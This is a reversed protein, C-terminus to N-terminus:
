RGCDPNPDYRVGPNVWDRLRQGHYAEILNLFVFMVEDLPACVDNNRWERFCMSSEVHTETFPKTVCKAHLDAHAPKNRFATDRVWYYRLGLQISPRAYDIEGYKHSFIEVIASNRKMFLSSTFAAGKVGIAIHSSRLKTVEEKFTMSTPDILELEIPLQQLMAVLADQNLLRRNKKRVLLVVKPPSRMHSRARSIASWELEARPLLKDHLIHQFLSGTPSSESDSEPHCQTQQSLAMARQPIFESEAHQWVFSRFIDAEIPSLFVPDKESVVTVSQFCQPVSRSLKIQKQKISLAAMVHHVWPNTMQRRYTIVVNKDIRDHLALSWFALIQQLSHYPHNPSTGTDLFIEGPQYRRQLADIGTGPGIQLQNHDNVNSLCHIRNNHWSSAITAEAKTNCDVSDVFLAAPHLNDLTICVKRFRCYAFAGNPGEGCGYPLTSPGLSQRAEAVEAEDIIVRTDSEERLKSKDPTALIRIDLVFTCCVYVAFAVAAGVGVGVALKIHRCKPSLTM